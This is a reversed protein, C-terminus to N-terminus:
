KLECDEQPLVFYIIPYQCSMEILTIFNNIMFGLSGCCGPCCIGGAAGVSGVVGSGMVGGAIGVSGGAAGVGSGGTPPVSSGVVESVGGGAWGPIYDVRKPPNKLVQIKDFNRM